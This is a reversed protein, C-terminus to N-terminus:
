ERMQCKEEKCDAKLELHNYVSILKAQRSAAMQMRSLPSIVM